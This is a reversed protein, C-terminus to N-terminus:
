VYAIFARLRKERMLEYMCWVCASCVCAGCVHVIQGETTGHWCRRWVCVRVCWLRLEAAYIPSLFILENTFIYVGGAVKEKM